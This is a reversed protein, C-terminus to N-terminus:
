DKYLNRVHKNVKEAYQICNYTGGGPREDWWAIVEDSEDVMWENRDQYVWPGLYHDAETVPYCEESHKLVWSYLEHYERVPKFTTWPMASIVPVKLDIAIKAAELDVGAACGQILTHDGDTLAQTLRVKFRHFDDIERHGTIAYLTM